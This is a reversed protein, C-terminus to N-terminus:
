LGHRKIQREAWNGAWPVKWWNGSGAQVMGVIWLIFGLVWIISSFVVGVVPIWGLIVGALTLAGFTVTSQLAHFRVFENKQELVLFVVGSVWGLVYCLLAATTEKLGVSTEQASSITKLSTGCHPCFNAADDIQGGCKPCYM